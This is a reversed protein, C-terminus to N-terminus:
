SDTLTSQCVQGSRNKSNKLASLNPLLCAFGCGQGVSKAVPLVVQSLVNDSLHWSSCNKSSGIRESEAEFFFECGAISGHFVGESGTLQQTEFAASLPGRYSYKM